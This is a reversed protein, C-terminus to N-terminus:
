DNEEKIKVIEEKSGGKGGVEEEKGKAAGGAPIFTSTGVEVYHVESSLTGSTFDSSIFMPVESESEKRKNRHTKVWEWLWDISLYVHYILILAFTVMAIAVMTYTIIYQNPPATTNTRGYLSWISLVGLNFIFVAEALNITFSQYVTGMLWMLTLICTVVTAIVLLNVQTTEFRATVAFSVFLGFRVLVMLGPWYRTRRKFPAQYADLLPKFNKSDVWRCARYKALSQLCPLFVLLLTYPIIFVLLFLMAMVFLAIHKGRLFPLNGDYLWVLTKSGDENYMYVSTMVAIVFRLIKAYSLLLITALIASSPRGLYKKFRTPVHKCILVLLGALICLYVPYVVELWAKAYADMGSYFCTKIGLDLNPWSIFITLIQELASVEAELPTFFVSYNEQVINAYLIFGNIAGVSVNLDLLLMLLILTVGMFAFPLILVIYKDSCKHCEPTGLTISLGPACSGCLIGSRNFACQLDPQTLQVGIGEQKCYNPSCHSSLLVSGNKAGVWVSGSRFFTQNRVYCKVAYKHLLPICKCQGQTLQFGVPCTYVQPTLQINISDNGGTCNNIEVPKDCDCTPSSDTCNYLVTPSVPQCDCTNNNIHSTNDTHNNSPCRTDNSCIYPEIPARECMSSSTYGLPCPVLSINLYVPRSTNLYVPRSTNDYSGQFDLELQLVKDGNYQLSSVSYNGTNNVCICM